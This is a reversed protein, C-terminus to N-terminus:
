CSCCCSLSSGTNVFTHLFPLSQATSIKFIIHYYILAYYSDYTTIVFMWLHWHMIDVSFSDEYVFSQGYINKVVQNMVVMFYIINLHELFVSCICM